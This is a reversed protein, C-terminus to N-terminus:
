SRTSKKAQVRGLAIAKALKVNIPGEQTSEKMQEPTNLGGATFAEMMARVESPNPLQGGGQSRMQERVGEPLQSFQQWAMEGQIPGFCEIMM